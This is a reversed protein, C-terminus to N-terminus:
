ASIRYPSTVIKRYAFRAKAARSNLSAGIRVPIRTCKKLTRSINLLTFVLIRKAIYVGCFYCLM